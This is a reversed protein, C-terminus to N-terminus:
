LRGQAKAPRPLAGSEGGDDLASAKSLSDGAQRQGGHQWGQPAAAKSSHNTTQPNISVCARRARGQSVNAPSLDAQGQCRDPRCSSPGRLWGEGRM